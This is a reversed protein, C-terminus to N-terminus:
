AHSINTLILTHLIFHAPSSETCDRQMSSSPASPCHGAVCFRVSDLGGVAKSFRQRAHLVSHLVHGVRIAKESASYGQAAELSVRLVRRDAAAM